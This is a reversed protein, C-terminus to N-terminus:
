ITQNLRRFNLMQFQYNVLIREPIDVSSFYGNLDEVM